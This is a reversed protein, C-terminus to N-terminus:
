FRRFRWYRESPEPDARYIRVMWVLGLVVGMIGVVALATPAQRLIWSESPGAGGTFWPAALFLFAFLLVSAFGVLLEARALWRAAKVREDRRRFEDV